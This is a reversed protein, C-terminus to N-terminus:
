LLHVPYQNKLNKKEPAVLPRIPCYVLSLVPIIDFTPRADETPRISLNHTYTYTYVYALIYICM